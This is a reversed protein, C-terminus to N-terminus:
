NFRRVYVQESIRDLYEALRQNLKQQYLYNRIMEQMELYDMMREPELTLAKVLHYGHESLVPESVDGSDMVAVLADFPPTLGEILFEGLFGGSDATAPDFSYERALSDFPEGALAKERVRRADALTRLSDSKRIPVRILISRFRVRDGSKAELKVTMYGELSRFPPSLQGPDLQDLVLAIDLPLDGLSNWGWDGGRSATKADDSFSGAVVQFEGGRSLIDLVEAARRQGDQEAAESPTVVFLIHALTIRGPVFAISDRKDEYFRKAEAPSIYIDTLGERAMLRQSLLKRKVDEEYRRRLTRETLGETMLAAQFQEEDPFRERLVRINEKVEASVEEKTVAITDQRAREQLVESGILQELVESRLTSDPTATDGAAMRFFDVALRLENELIVTEGVVAAISDAPGAQVTLVLVLSGLLLLRAAPSSSISM